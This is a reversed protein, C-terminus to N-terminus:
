IAEGEGPHILIAHAVSEALKALLLDVFKLDRSWTCLREDDLSAIFTNQWRVHFTSHDADAPLHRATKVQIGRDDSDISISALLANNVIGVLIFRTDMMVSVILLTASDIVVLPDSNVKVLDRGGDFRKIDGNVHIFTAAGKFFTGRGVNAETGGAGSLFVDTDFHAFVVEIFSDFGAADDETAELALADGPDELREGPATAARLTGIFRDDTYALAPDVRDHQGRLFRHRTREHAAFVM